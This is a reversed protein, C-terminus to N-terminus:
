HAMHVQEHELTHTLWHIHGHAHTEQKKLYPTKSLPFVWCTYISMLLHKLHCFNMLLSNTSAAWQVERYVDWCNTLYSFDMLKHGYFGRQKGNFILTSWSKKDWWFSENILWWWVVQNQKKSIFCNVKGVWHHLFTSVFPLREKKKHLTQEM